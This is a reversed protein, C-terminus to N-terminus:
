ELVHGQGHTTGSLHDWTWVGAWGREEGAVALDRLEPWTADFPDVLLDLLM